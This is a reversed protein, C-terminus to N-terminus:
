ANQWKAKDARRISRVVLSDAPVDNGQAEEYAHIAATIVAVLELDDSLEEEVAEEEVPAAATTEPVATEGAKKAARSTEFKNIYKFLSIIWAILLLVLFVIVIGMVTNLLATLMTAGLSKKEGAETAAMAMFPNALLAAVIGGAVGTLKKINKM